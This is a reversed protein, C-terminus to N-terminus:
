SCLIIRRSSFHLARATSKELKRRLTRFAEPKRRRHPLPDLIRNTRCARTHFLFPVLIGQGVPRLRSTGGRGVHVVHAWVEACAVVDGCVTRCTADGDGSDGNPALQRRRSGCEGPTGLGSCLGGVGRAGCQRTDTKVRHLRARTVRASRARHCPAWPGARRVARQELLAAIRPGDHRPTRYPSGVTAPRGTARDRRGAVRSITTAAVRACM